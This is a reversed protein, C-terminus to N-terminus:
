VTCYVVGDKGDGFRWLALYMLYHWSVHQLANSDGGLRGSGGEFAEKVLIYGRGSGPLVAPEARLKPLGGAATRGSNKTWNLEAAEREM